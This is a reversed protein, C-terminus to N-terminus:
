KSYKYFGQGTKRGMHGAVVMKKLLVPPFYVPDQLEEYIGMSTNYLIDLGIFDALVFPGMPYNLGLTVAQDIDEKNALGTELARIAILLYPILLRNVIFGPTDRCTATVKGISQGFKRATEIVEDSTAITRVLELLKMVPAPRFFHLGIVNEPRKTVAALDIISLSSTNSALIAHPPCIEDLASFVKRKEDIDESIAEIVLDCKNFDNMNTTGKIHSLTVKRDEETGKGKRVATETSAEIMEIGKGLLDSNIERVVVDYGSRACVEAIGSGMLGCGMVGVKQIDM